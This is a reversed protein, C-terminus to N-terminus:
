EVGRNGFIQQKYVIVKDIIEDVHDNVILKKGTSLNIVTDPTARITEILDVNIVIEEGDM